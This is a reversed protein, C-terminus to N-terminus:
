PLAAVSNIWTANMPGNTGDDALAATIKYLNIANNKVAGIPQVDTVIFGMDQSAQYASGGLTPGTARLRAAQFTQAAMADYFSSIAQATSQVTLRLTGTIESEVHQGFYLNGDQTHDPLLGTKVNLSWDELFNTLISAGALGAWTSAIKLTWWSGAIKVATNDTPTAKATKIARQGFVNGTLSTTGQRAAGMTWESWMAYQLRWNQVDDGIDISYAEPNNAATMSPVVAWTKDAGAGTGTLGGKLQSLFWIDDFALADTGIQLAVDETTQTARRVDSRRGYNEDEHLNLGLDFGLVGSAKGYWKRTPAVPTGRVTEKGYNLYTFSQIGPM